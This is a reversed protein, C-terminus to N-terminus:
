TSPEATSHSAIKEPPSTSHRRSTPLNGQRLLLKTSALTLWAIKISLSHRDRRDRLANALITMNKTRDIMDVHNTFRALLSMDPVLWSHDDLTRVRHPRTFFSDLISLVEWRRFLQHRCSSPQRPLPTRVHVFYLIVLSAVDVVLAKSAELRSM